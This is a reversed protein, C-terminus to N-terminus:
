KKHLRPPTAASEHLPSLDEGPVFFRFRSFCHHVLLGFQPGARLEHHLRTTAFARGLAAAEPHAAPDLALKTFKRGPSARIDM